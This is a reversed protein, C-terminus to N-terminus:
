SRSTWRVEVVYDRGEWQERQRQFYPLNASELWFFTFRLPNRQAVSAMLDVYHIGLGSHTSPTDAHTQWEDRTWHLRFSAPAQIRLTAGPDVARAQRAPKWIELDHRGQHALYRAAVSPVGDFIKGDAISRVLRIYEAHAWMLPLASGTPRGIRIGLEPRDEDWVQEPLM